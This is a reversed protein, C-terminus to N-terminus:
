YVSAHELAALKERHRDLELSLQSIENELRSKRSTLAQIEVLLEIRRETDTSPAILKAADSTLSSRVEDLERKKRYLTSQTAGVIAAAQHIERGSKYADRFDARLDAPCVASLSQGKRGLRYGSAPTCYERLGEDRGKQYAAFDPAIGHEACAERREGIHSAAVGRVGDEYGIARWDAVRCEDENMSACGSVVLGLLVILPWRSASFWNVM